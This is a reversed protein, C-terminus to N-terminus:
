DGSEGGPHALFEIIAKRAANDPAHHTVLFRDLAAPGDRDLMRRSFGLMLVPGHCFVCRAGILKIAPPGTESGPAGGPEAGFAALAAAFTWTLAVALGNRLAM